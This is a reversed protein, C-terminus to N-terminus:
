SFRPWRTRSDCSLFVQDELLFAVDVQFSREYSWDERGVWQVSLENMGVYPDPIRGAALLASHTDGPCAGASRGENWSEPAAM